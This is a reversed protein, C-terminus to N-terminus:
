FHTRPLAKGIRTVRPMPESRGSYPSPYPDGRSHPPSQSTYPDARPGDSLFADIPINEGQLKNYPTTSSEKKMKKKKAASYIMVGAISVVMIGGLSGIVAVLVVSGTQDKKIDSIKTNVKERSRKVEEQMDSIVNQFTANDILNEFNSVDTAAQYADELEGNKGTLDDLDELTWGDVNATLSTLLKMIDSLNTYLKDCEPSTDNICFNDITSSIVEQTQEKKLKWWGAPSDMVSGTSSRKSSALSSCKALIEATVNLEEKTYEYLTLDDHPPTPTTTTPNNTPPKTDGTPTSGDSTPETNPKKTTSSGDSTDTSTTIVDTSNTEADTSTTIVDTSNTEADTSTTIVDTSNTEADTSATETDTSNSLGDESDIAEWTEYAVEQTEGALSLGAAYCPCALLAVLLLLSLGPWRGRAARM